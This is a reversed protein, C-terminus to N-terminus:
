STPLVKHRLIGQLIRATRAIQFGERFIKRYSAEGSVSLFLARRLGADEHALNLLLDVADTMRLGDALKQMLSGYTRDSLVPRCALRYARFAKRSIGYDMMVKAAAVGTKCAATIGKGKFPRVMGAADGIAVFRDAFFVKAPRNPFLGKHCKEAVAKPEYDPPLWRKVEPLLLFEEMTSASVRRGAINVTLHDRKPTMAGFSVGSIRPLFAIIEEEFRSMWANGPHINTVITELAKPRRYSIWQEFVSATGPDLGFAGVVVDAKLTGNEGYVVVGGAMTEISTVRCDVVEVGHLRAQELMFEDWLCRRVAYSRHTGSVLRIDRHPGCLRYSRITRQVIPYPFEIGLSWKVLEEIPPSLVGACQNYHRENDFVKGEYLVVRIDIGREAAMKKLAIGCSTGAPGGGVIAVTQGSQLPGLPSPNPFLLAPQLPTPREASAKRPSTRYRLGVCVMRFLFRPSLSSWFIDRYRADGTFLNWTLYHLTQATQGRPRNRVFHLHARVWFRRAAVFDNLRFLIRAYANEKQFERRMFFFYSKRLTRSSLGHDFAAQVAYKATRFASDIGNKYYRSMSADGIFILRNGWFGRAGSVPLRPRCSCYREPLRWGGPLLQRVTETELVAALHTDNLDRNGVLSVTVFRTKPIMAAFRVDKIGLSLVHISNGLSKELDAEGLDLEAQFARVCRPFVYGTGSDALQKGFSSTVGCAVVVLDVELERDDWRLRPRIKPDQSLSLSDVNSPVIEAGL